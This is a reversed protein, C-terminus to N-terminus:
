KTFFLYAKSVIINNHENHVKELHNTNESSETQQEQYGTRQQQKRRGADNTALAPLIKKGRENLLKTIERSLNSCLCTHHYIYNM